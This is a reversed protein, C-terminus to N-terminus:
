ADTEAIAVDITVSWVKGSPVTESFRNVVEGSENDRIQIQKGASLVFTEGGVSHSTAAKAAQSTTALEITM